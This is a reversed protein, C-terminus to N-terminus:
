RPDDMPRTRTGGLLSHLVVILDVGNALEPLVPLLVHLGPEVLRGALLGAASSASGLCSSNSRAGDGTSHARQHVSGSHLVVGLDADAPSEGQSLDLISAQLALELSLGQANSHIRAAAIAGHPALLGIHLAEALVLRVENHEWTIALLELLAPLCIGRSLLSSNCSLDRVLNDHLRHLSNSLDLGPLDSVILTLGVGGTHKLSSPVISAEASETPLTRLLLGVLLCLLSKLLCLLSRFVGFHAHKSSGFM